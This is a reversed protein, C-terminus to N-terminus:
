TKAIALGAVHPVGAKKLARAAEEITAGSTVVDDVLFVLANEPLGRNEASFCGEVNLAREKRTGCATQSKTDRTRRLTNSFVAARFGTKRLERALAESFLGSQNFGRERERRPYLPIPLLAPMAGRPITQSLLPSILRAATAAAKETGGYKLAHILRRAPISEYSFGAFVSISGPHCKGEAVRKGCSSCVFGGRVGLLASCEPCMLPVGIALARGCSLCLPPFLLDPIKRLFSLM